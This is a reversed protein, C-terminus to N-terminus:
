EGGAPEVVLVPVARAAALRAAVDEALGNRSLVVLREAVAALAGTIAAADKMGGADMVVLEAGTVAAISTAVEVGPDGARTALAVIAGSRRAIRRPVLLVAARSRFAAQALAAFRGAAREAASAPEFLVVIDDTAAVAGFTEAATGRVVEFRWPLRLREVARALRRESGSAELRMERLLREADLPRWDGGTGLERAFPLAALDLLESDEIFLGLLDLGLLGATDVAFELAEDPPRRALGIVLRRFRAPDM